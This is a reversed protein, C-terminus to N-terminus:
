TTQQRAKKTNYKYIQLRESKLKFQATGVPPAAYKVIISESAM